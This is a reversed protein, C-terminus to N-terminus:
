CWHDPIWITNEVTKGWADGSEDIRTVEHISHGSGPSAAQAFIREGTTYQRDEVVQGTLGDIVAHKGLNYEFDDSYSGTGTLFEHDDQCMEGDPDYDVGPVPTHGYLAKFSAFEGTM